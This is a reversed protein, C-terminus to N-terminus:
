VGAMVISPTTVADRWTPTAISGQSPRRAAVVACVVTAGALGALASSWVAVQGTGLGYLSWCACAAM